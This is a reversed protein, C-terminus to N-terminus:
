EVDGRKRPLPANTTEPLRKLLTNKLYAAIQWDKSELILERKDDHKVAFLRSGRLEVTKLDSFLLMGRGTFLHHKSIRLKVWPQSQFFAALCIVFMMISVGIQDNRPMESMWVAVALMSCVVLAARLMGPHETWTYTLEDGAEAIMLSKPPVIVLADDLVEEEDVERKRTSVLIEKPQYTLGCQACHALVGSPPQRHACRPCVADPQAGRM